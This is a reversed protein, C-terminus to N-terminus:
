DKQQAYLEEYKRKAAEVKELYAEADSFPIVRLMGNSSYAEDALWKEVNGPGANYALLAYRENGEFRDLLYRLYWCGYRINTDPDFLDDERFGREKGELKEYIWGGTGPMIQMLGRAGKSSVAQADNGSEVHIIAAILFADLGYEGAYGEILGDYDLRYAM